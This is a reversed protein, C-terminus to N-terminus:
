RVKKIVNTRDKEKRVRGTRNEEEKRIERKREENHESGGIRHEKEM